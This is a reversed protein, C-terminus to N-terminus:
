FKLYLSKFFNECKTQELIKYINWFLWWFSEFPNSIYGLRSASSQFISQIGIRWFHLIVQVFSERAMQLPAKSLLLQTVFRLLQTAILWNDSLHWEYLHWETQVWCLVEEFSELIIEVAGKVSKFTHLTNKSTRCTLQSANRLKKFTKLHSKRFM